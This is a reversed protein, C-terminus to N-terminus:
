EICISSYIEELMPEYINKLSERYYSHFFYYTNGKKVVISDGCMNIGEAVYTFPYGYATEKGINFKRLSGLKYGADNASEGYRKRMNKAMDKTGLVISAWKPISKWSSSVLLHRDEDAMCWAPATQGKALAEREEDDMVLFGMPVGIKLNENIALLEMKEM